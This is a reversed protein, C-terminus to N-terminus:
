LFADRLGVYGVKCISRQQGNRGCLYALLFSLNSAISTSKKPYITRFTSSVSSMRSVSHWLLPLNWILFAIRMIRSCFLIRTPTALPKSLPFIPQKLTFIPEEYNANPHNLRSQTVAVITGIEFNASGAYGINIYHGDKPLTQLARIVNIAGVGTIVLQWLSKDLLEFQNNAVEKGGLIDVILKKEQEEAVLIYNMM